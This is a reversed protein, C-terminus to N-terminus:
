ELAIQVLDVDIVNGLVLVQGLEKTAAQFRVYADDVIAATQYNLYM